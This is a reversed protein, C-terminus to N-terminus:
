SETEKTHTDNGNLKRELYKPLIVEFLRMLFHLITLSFLVTLFYIFGESSLNAKPNLFGLFSYYNSAWEATYVAFPAFVYIATFFCILLYCWGQITKPVQRFISIALGLLISIPTYEQMIKTEQTPKNLIIHQQM